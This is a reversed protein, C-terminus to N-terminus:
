GICSKDQTEDHHHVPKREFGLSTYHLRRRQECERVIIWMSVPSGLDAWFRKIVYCHGAVRSIPLQPLHRSKQGRFVGVMELGICWLNM